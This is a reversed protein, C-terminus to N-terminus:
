TKQMFLPSGFREYEVKHEQFYFERLNQNDAKNVVVIINKGRRRLMRAIILDHQTVGDHIDLVFVVSSAESIAILAQERVMAALSMQKKKKEAGENQGGGETEDTYKDGGEGVIGGTDVVILERGYWRCATYDRDRTTGAVDGILARKDGLAFRNFLTSKGVNPRGVIAVVPYVDPAVTHHM